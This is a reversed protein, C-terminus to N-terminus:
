VTLSNINRHTKGLPLVHRDEKNSEGSSLRRRKVREPTKVRGEVPTKKVQGEVPTKKARGGVPTKKV